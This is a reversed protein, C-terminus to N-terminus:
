HPLCLSGSSAAALFRLSFKMVTGMWASSTDQAFFLRVASPFDGRIFFEEPAFFLWMASLPPLPFCSFFIFFSSLLCASLLFPSPLGLWASSAGVYAPNQAARELQSVTEERRCFFYITLFQGTYATEPRRTLVM